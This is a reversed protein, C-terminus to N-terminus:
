NLSKLLSVCFMAFSNRLETNANRASRPLFRRVLFHNLTRENSFRMFNHLFASKLRRIVESKMGSELDGQGLSAQPSIKISQEENKVSFENPTVSRSANLGLFSMKWVSVSKGNARAFSDFRHSDAQIRERM